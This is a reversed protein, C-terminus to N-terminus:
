KTNIIKKGNSIVFGPTNADVPQGPLNYTLPSSENANGNVEEIATDYENPTGDYSGKLDAQYKVEVPKATNSLNTVKCGNKFIINQCFALFMGRYGSVQVNDFVVDHIKMEPRGYLYVPSNHKWNTKGAVGTATINQFLINCFEPTKEEVTNTPNDAPNQLDSDYWCTIKIPSPCGTMTANRFIINKVAGNTGLQDNGSRGTNTKVRFGSGTGTFTIDEYIIDHTGETFSGISMGHGDGCAINCAHVHHAKSDCVINDDGTSINCDYINVYPAWVPIGDTNHSPSAAESSPAKITVDHVTINNAGGGQGLTLNTGPSNLLKFNRFLHRSGKKIRILSPRTGLEDRHSWWGAGQGDIVSTNGEGEIILDNVTSSGSSLFIEYSYKGDSGKSGLPYCGASNVGVGGFPLLKLTAGANLHVITKSKVVIPGCKWTGAPIVVMGGTTPVADLAEQIYKANDGATTKAGFDKINFTNSATIAPINPLQVSTWGEPTNQAALEASVDNDAWTLHCVASLLVIFLTRLNLFHM